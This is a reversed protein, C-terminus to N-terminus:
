FKPEKITTCSRGFTQPALHLVNRDRVKALTRRVMYTPRAKIGLSTTILLGKEHLHKKLAELSAKVGSGDPTMETAVKYSVVPDLYLATGYKDLWGICLGRPHSEGSKNEDWGWAMSDHPEAGESDAVHAKGSAIASNILEIFRTAPEQTAQHAAQATGVETLAAWARALLKSHEDQNIALIELAFDLFIELGTYLQAVNAPTRAHEGSQTAKARYEAAKTKLRATVEDLRPSLYALYGSTASAFLGNAADRQSRTLRVTNIEGGKIESIFLRARVSEGPPLEEGSSAIFTRSPKDPRLSTDARMRGRGSGNGAGRFVRAADRMRRAGDAKDQGLTLDDVALLMDKAAFALGEISNATSEWNAPLHRADFDRGFHQQILAILESKFKGTAGVLHNSFDVPGLVSRWIAAYLPMMVNDPGLGDLLRLSARVAAIRADGSPPEPLICKALPAPLDVNVQSTAGIAGEGHLYVWVVNLKRWGVHTYTYKDVINTSLQKIADRAQDLTGKGALINARAGLERDVWQMKAYDAAPITCNVTQGAVIAEIEYCRTVEAGDDRAVNAVIRAPFNCIPAQIEGEKTKKVINIGHATAVYLASEGGPRPPLQKVALKTFENWSTIEPHKALYNDLDDDLLFFWVEAGRKERAIRLSNAADWANPSTAVNADCAIYEERRRTKGKKKERPKIEAFDPLPSGGSSWGHCGLYNVAMISDGFRSTLADGVTLKEGYVVPKSIDKCHQSRLVDLMPTSGIKSLHKGLTRDDPKLQSGDSGAYISSVRSLVGGSDTPFGYHRGNSVRIVGREKSIEPAVGRDTYYRCDSETLPSVGDSSTKNSWNSHAGSAGQRQDPIELDMEVNEEDEVAFVLL